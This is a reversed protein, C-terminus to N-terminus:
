ITSNRYFKIFTFFITILVGSVIGGVILSKLKGFKEKELPFKPSDILQILPTEKRLTIKSLELQITLQKLIETNATLDVQIKKSLVGKINQTPNLNYLNDTIEAYGNINKNLVNRVSDVQRQLVDSNIKAKRSKTQIYFDSTDKAINECFVKSFIEDKSTVEISLISVKKDKQLISLNEKEILKNYINKIISDQIKTLGKENSYPPFSVKKLIPSKNWSKGLQNVQIYYELISITKNNIKIPLFLVKEVILRSKMLETLNSAAFAGGGGNNGLDIGFSSALGIAGSLGASGGKDEEMAFTLTAKYNPKEFWGITLGIISGILIGLIIVKLKSKLFTTIEKFNSILDSLSLENNDYNKHEIYNKNSTNM